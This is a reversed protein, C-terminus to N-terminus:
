VSVWGRHRGLANVLATALDEGIRLLLADIVRARWDEM